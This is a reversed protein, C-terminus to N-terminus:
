PQRKARKRLRDRVVDVPETSATENSVEQITEAFDAADKADRKALADKAADRRERAVLGVAAALALAILGLRRALRSQTLFAWIM